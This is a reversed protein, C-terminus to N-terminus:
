MYHANCMSPYVDFQHHPPSPFDRGVRQSPAVDASVANGLASEGQYDARVFLVANVM